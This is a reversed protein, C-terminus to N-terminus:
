KSRQLDGVTHIYTDVDVIFLRSAIESDDHRGDRNADIKRKNFLAHSEVVCYIASSTTINRTGFILALLVSNTTIPLRMLKKSICLLFESM